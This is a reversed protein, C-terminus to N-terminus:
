GEEEDKFLSFDLTLNFNEENKMNDKIDEGNKARQAWDIVTNLAEIPDDSFVEGRINIDYKIM